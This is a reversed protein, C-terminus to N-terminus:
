WFWLALVIKGTAIGGAAILPIQLQERVM